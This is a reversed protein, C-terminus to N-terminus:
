PHRKKPPLISDVRARWRAIARDVDDAPPTRRIMAARRTNGEVASRRVLANVDVSVSAAASSDSSNFAAGALVLASGTLLASQPIAIWLRYWGPRVREVLIRAGPEPVSWSNALRGIEAGRVGARTAEFIRTGDLYGLLRGNSALRIADSGDIVLVTSRGVMVRWGAGLTPRTKSLQELVGDLGSEEAVTALMADFTAAEALTAPAAVELVDPVTALALPEEVLTASLEPLEAMDAVGIAAECGTTATALVLTFAFVVTPRM